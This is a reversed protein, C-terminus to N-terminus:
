DAPWALAHTGPPMSPRPWAPPTASLQASHRLATLRGFGSDTTEVYPAFDPKAATFGEAVRGLGRLWLGTRALSVQVHWSGGELAQRRLAACAALAILQGAAHDLIQMPLARPPGSGFAEAEAQNFGTATQVLSDFGRRGAWPGDPGYASLSVVVIGPHREALADAGYGLAALGGPRYGQVFVHADRLVADFAERQAADHLDAHASLKGRSTEAIAEINPLKPSNVLLVDAGHAALTRTGVPGALIRTLDLVHLGRLPRAGPPLEPWVRPPADGLRQWQLLPQRAVAIGQAHRDWEDFSRLAAVVLGADAAAQEFDLATWGRLARRVDAAETGPGEPLGLLRLAGDRHHAFNTHIRVWGASGADDGCPYLGALKDWPQLPQGNLLFHTCCELAAHRMDVTVQQRPGGRQRGVEAAALAGAALAAQAATGVAFSSPLVPERGPLRAQPLSDTPLGAAQWLMQLAAEPTQLEAPTDPM